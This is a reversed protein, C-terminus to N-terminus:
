PCSSKPRNDLPAGAVRWDEDEAAKTRVRRVLYVVVLVNVVLALCRVATVRQFLEYLELPILLATAVITLWEAWRIDLWLGLGETAFLAAYGFCAAALLDKHPADMRCLWRVGDALSTVHYHAAIRAAWHETEWALGNERLRLAAVGAAVLLTCKGLKLWAIM